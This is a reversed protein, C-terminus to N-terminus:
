HTVNEQNKAHRSIKKIPHQAPTTVLDHRVGVVGHLLNGGEGAPSRGSEPILVAEGANCAAEISSQM